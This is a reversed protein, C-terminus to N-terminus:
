PAVRDTAPFSSSRAWSPPMPSSAHMVSIGSSPSPFPSERWNPFHPSPISSNSNAPFHPNRPEFPGPTGPESAPAAHLADTLRRHSEIFSDDGITLSQPQYKEEVDVTVVEVTILGVGRAARTKLYEILRDSPTQDENGYNTTMPSMVMRNKLQM